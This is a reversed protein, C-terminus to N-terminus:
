IFRGTKADVVVTICHHGKCTSTEDIGVTRVGSRDANKRAKDVCQELAHWIRFDSVDYELAVGRISSRKCQSILLAEMERTMRIKPRAWPVEVLLDKGCEGCKVRLVRAEIYCQCRLAWTRAGGSGPGSTTCPSTPRAAIPASEAVGGFIPSACISGASTM